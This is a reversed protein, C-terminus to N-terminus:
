EESTDLHIDGRIRGPPAGLNKKCFDSFSSKSSFGYHTALEKLPKNGVCLDHYIDRSKQEIIWKYPPIGFIEKFKKEFTLQKLGMTKAFDPISNANQYNQKVFYYFHIDAQLMEGFFQALQKKPYYARFLYFLEKIKIELYLKCRLGQELNETLVTIFTDIGRNAELITIDKCEEDKHSLLNELPYCECLCEVSTLRVVLLKASDKTSLSFHKDPAILLIQGEYLEAVTLSGLRYTVNGEMVFIIKCQLSRGTFPQGREIKKVEVQPRDNSDYHICSSHEKEYLLKM